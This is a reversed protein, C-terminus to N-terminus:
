KELPLKANRRTCSGFPWDRATDKEDDISEIRNSAHKGRQRQRYGHRKGSGSVRQNDPRDDM